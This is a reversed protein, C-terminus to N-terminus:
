KPSKSCDSQNKKYCKQNHKNEKNSYNRPLEANKKIQIHNFSEFLEIFNM